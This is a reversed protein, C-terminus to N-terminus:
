HTYISYGQRCERVSGGKEEWVVYVLLGLARLARLDCALTLVLPTVAPAFVRGATGLAGEFNVELVAVLLDRLDVPVARPAAGVLYGFAPHLVTVVDREVAEADGGTFQSHTRDSDTLILSQVYSNDSQQAAARTSM